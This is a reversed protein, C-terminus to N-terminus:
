QEIEGGMLGLCVVIADIVRETAHHETVDWISARTVPMGEKEVVVTVSEESAQFEVTIM